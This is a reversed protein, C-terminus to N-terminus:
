DVEYSNRLNLILVCPLQVPLNNLNWGAIGYVSVCVYMHYYYLYLMYSYRWGHPVACILCQPVFRGLYSDEQVWFILMKWCTKLLRNMQVNSGNVDSLLKEMKAIFHLVSQMQSCVFHISVVQVVSSLREIQKLKNVISLEPHVLIDAFATTRMNM